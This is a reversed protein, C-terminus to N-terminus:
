AKKGARARLERAAKSKRIQNKLKRSEARRKRARDQSPGTPREEDLTEFARLDALFRRIRVGTKQRIWADVEEDCAASIAIHLGRLVDRDDIDRDLYDSSSPASSSSQQSTDKKSSDTTPESEEEPPPQKEKNAPPDEHGTKTTADQEASKDLKVPPMPPNGNSEAEKEEMHRNATEMAVELSSPTSLTLRWTSPLSPNPLETDQSTAASPEKQKKEPVALTEPLSQLKEGGANSSPQPGVPVQSQQAAAKAKSKREPQRVSVRLLKGDAHRRSTPRIEGTPRTPINEDSVSEAAAPRGTTPGKGSPEAEAEELIAKVRETFANQQEPKRLGKIQESPKAAPKLRGPARPPIPPTNEKESTPEKFTKTTPSPAEIGKDAPVPVLGPRFNSPRQAPNGHWTKVRPDRFETGEKCPNAVFDRKVVECYQSPSTIFIEEEKYDYVPEWKALIKKPTDITAPTSVPPARTTLVENSEDRPGSFCTIGCCGSKKPPVEDIFAIEWDNPQTFAVETVVSSSSESSWSRSRLGNLQLRGPQEPAKSSKHQPGATPAGLGDELKEGKAPREVPPPKQQQQASTVALGAAVFQDEYPKLLSVTRLSVVSEPTPTNVPLNGAAERREAYIELQRAFRDVARRRSSTRSPPQPPVGFRKENAPLSEGHDFSGFPERGASLPFERKRPPSGIPAMRQVRTNTTKRRTPSGFHDAIPRAPDNPAKRARHAGTVGPPAQGFRHDRRTSPGPRAPDDMAIYWRPPTRQISQNNIRQPSPTLPRLADSAITRRLRELEREQAVSAALPISSSRSPRRVSASTRRPQSVRGSPLRVKGLRQSRVVFRQQRRLSEVSPSLPKRSIDEAAQHAIHPQPRPFPPSVHPSLCNCDRFVRMVDKISPSSYTELQRRGKRLLHEVVSFDRKDVALYKDFETRAFSRFHSQAIEPKKRIERLCQRYLALVEKQLGSLGRRAGAM